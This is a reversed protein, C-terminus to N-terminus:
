TGISAPAKQAARHELVRAGDSGSLILRKSPRYASSGHDSTVPLFAIACTGRAIVHGGSSPAFGKVSAEVETSLAIYALMFTLLTFWLLSPM